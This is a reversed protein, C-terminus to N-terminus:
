RPGTLAQWLTIGEVCAFIVVVTIIAVVAYLLYLRLSPRWNKRTVWGPPNVYGV